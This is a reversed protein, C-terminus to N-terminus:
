CKVGIVCVDDVQEINKKWNEFALNLINKQEDMTKQQISLLLDKMASVKFKKGQAGGFQDAYGDSFIYISDNEQLQISHTTFSKIEVYKGIPQKDPRTELLEGNRIIWLPNNAGAWKLENTKTNLVCLSIDMGDKVEEDSKKFQEIILERTKDLLQGPVRIEFEHLARNLANSCVVSVIAGPVGHGTCDAAAFFILEDAKEIWYFDGAVIDKPKYLIFSDPLYEKVLRLPLLIADQIRKAYTISDTIEKQKEEVLEKQHVVEATREKVTIELQKQRARLSATRWLYFSYLSGIIFLAVLSRFWWTEWWPPRITFPYNYEISWYGESNMAKVKFTFKGHPMNGYHAETRDTITNWNEDLGELKYQYKVKKSQKQTIGIYKFTLYNNNYALSLKQPLGYWRCVSEFYFNGVSVGNGLVFSTDKKNEFYVWPITENFLEIGTLQMNPLATDEVEQGQHFATLRDNAGIWITGSTDEYISNLNCGIGLFGDEYTYSKIFVDEKGMTPSIKKDSIGSLGDLDKRSIKSLGFRTGFLLNGSKDQLASLVYNNSLGEKETYQTLFKGDYKSVGGGFSCFWLNESKDQLISSVYMNGLGEKETFHTFSEGDYKIIGGGYTGFWMNGSKDELISRVGNDSLGEKKTFHTFSKGDYKDVGSATGFWLNGSQDQFIRYVTSNIIGENISFQAFTKGDYKLVGSGETGFWLNGSDDQIISYIPLGETETFYTFSKGDYKNLGGRSGFWLNGSKDQFIGFIMKNSLGERETYNTFSQGNFKSVGGGYTGFWLNGNKDQLIANVYNNSLGENETFQTFSKGDYRNLGNGTGFWLNGSKDQLISLVMNNSLGETDTFHTFSKGDYKNVGGHNGFWLNGGSDQLISYVYNNSLGEKETFHTFSIGDYKSVGGGLTGFWLIGSKDQFVRFVSNNSLGTKETFQTFSTGDYKSVGGGLTGFWLNGNQDQISSNVYNSSLGEKETFHTFSIGDYKSVGGGGTCFWLNGSKDQLIDNIMNNSLGEKVTYNTFYKGDFKSLGEDTGFWLNGSIDQFLCSVFSHKLGQMKGFSSFNQPNLDKSYADKALVVEPIGAVFPRDIAPVVKPLLFTDQGPTCIRPIGALVIKPKGAIHINTNTLVIKPTGAKIIKPKGAPIVKPESISDKPIVYGKVEAYKPAFIIPRKQEQQRNCSFLFLFIGGIFFLQRNM